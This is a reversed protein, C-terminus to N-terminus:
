LRLLSPFSVLRASRPLIPTCIPTCISPVSPYFGSARQGPLSVSCHSGTELSQPLLCYLLVLSMSGKAEGHRYMPTHVCM